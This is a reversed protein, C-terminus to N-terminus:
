EPHDLEPDHQVEGQLKVFLRLLVRDFVNPHKRFTRNILRTLLKQQTEGWWVQLGIM